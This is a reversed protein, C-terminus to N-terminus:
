KGTILKEMDDIRCVVNGSDLLFVNSWWSDGHYDFPDPNFLRNYWNKWLNMIWKPELQGIASLGGTAMANTMDNKLQVEYRPNVVKMADHDRLRVLDGENVVVGDWKDGVYLVKGVPFTYEEDGEMIGGTALRVYTFVRVIIQSSNRSYAAMREPIREADWKRFEAVIEHRQIM